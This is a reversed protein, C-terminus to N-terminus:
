LCAARRFGRGIWGIVHMAHDPVTRLQQDLQYWSRQMFSPYCAQPHKRDYGLALLTEGAVAEVEADYRPTHMDVELPAMAEPLSFGYIPDGACAAKMDTGVPEDIFAFMQEIQQLPQDCFDEYRMVYYRDKRRMAQGQAHAAQAVQRWRHAATYANAAVGERLVLPVVQRGDRVVHVFMADPFWKSLREIDQGYGPSADAWRDKGQHDAYAKYIEHMLETFQHWCPDKAWTAPKERLGLTSYGPMSGMAYALKRRNRQTLWGAKAWRRGLSAVYGTPPTVAVRSFSNMLRAILQVSGDDSGVFFIPRSQQENM